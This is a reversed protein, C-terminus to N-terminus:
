ETKSSRIKKLLLVNELLWNRKVITFVMLMIILSYRVITIKYSFLFCFGVIIFILTIISLIKLDYPKQNEFNKNVLKSM